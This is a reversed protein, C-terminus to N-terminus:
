IAWHKNPEQETYSLFLHIEDEMKHKAIQM